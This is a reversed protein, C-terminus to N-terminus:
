ASDTGTGIQDIKQNIEKNITTNITVNDITDSNITEIEKNPLAL